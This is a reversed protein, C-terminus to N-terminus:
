IRTFMHLYDDFDNPQSNKPFLTDYMTPETFLNKKLNKINYFVFILYFLLLLITIGFIIVAAFPWETDQKKKSKNNTEVRTDYLDKFFWIFIVYHLILIFSIIFVMIYINNLSNKVNTDTRM